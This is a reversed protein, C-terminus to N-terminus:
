DYDKIIIYQNNILYKNVDKLVDDITKKKSDIVKNSLYNYHVNLRRKLDKLKIESVNILEDNALLNIPTVDVAHRIIEGDIKESKFIVKYLTFLM